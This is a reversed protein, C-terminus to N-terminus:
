YSVSSVTAQTIKFLTSTAKGLDISTRKLFWIKSWFLVMKKMHLDRNQLFSTQILPSGVPMIVCYICLDYCLLFFLTHKIAHYEAPCVFVCHWYPWIIPGCWQLAYLQYHYITLTTSSHSHYHLRMTFVFCHSLLFVM